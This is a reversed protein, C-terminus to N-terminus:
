KGQENMPEFYHQIVFDYLSEEDPYFEMYTEGTSAKGEVTEIGDFRYDRLRNALQALEDTILDSTAYGELTEALSFAFRDSAKLKETMRDYLATVFVRQRRMRSLNTGDSVGSRARVFSLAKQGRLTVDAGQVFGPDLETLNEDIHVTVGGVLDTLVPIADMTVAYYHQVPIGFLLRSVAEAVNRCSDRGGSGFSHANNLHATVYGDPNGNEDLRQIEMYTDRNLQLASYTENTRDLVMLMIFDAQRNNLNKDDYQFATDTTEDTGLILYSIVDDRLRYTKGDRELTLRTIEPDTFGATRERDESKEWLSLGLFGAGILVVLIALLWIRTKKRRHKM